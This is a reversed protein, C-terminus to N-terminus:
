YHLDECGSITEGVVPFCMDFGIGAVFTDHGDEGWLVDDGDYGFMLDDGAGAYFLDYGNNGFLVDNGARGYLVSDGPGGSLVNAGADGLLVDLDQGGTLHEVGTYTDEDYNGGGQPLRPGGESDELSLWLPGTRTSYSVTDSGAGGDIADKSLGSHILDAGDDGYVVNFFTADNATYITDSGAGGRVITAPTAVTVTDNLDGALVGIMWATGSTCWVLTSVGRFPHHCGTGAIIPAVDTFQWWTGSSNVVKSTTVSNQTGVGAEFTIAAASVWATGPAAAYVPSAGVLAIAIGVAAGAAVRM